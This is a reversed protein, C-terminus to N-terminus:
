NRPPAVRAPYRSIASNQASVRRMLRDKAARPHTHGALSARGHGISCPAVGGVIVESRHGSMEYRLNEVTVEVGTGARRWRVRARGGAQCAFEIAREVATTTSRTAPDNEDLWLKVQAAVHKNRIYRAPAAFAHRGKRLRACELECRVPDALNKRRRSRRDVSRLLDRDIAPLADSVHPEDVRENLCQFHKSEVTSSIANDTSPACLGDHLTFREFRQRNPKGIQPRCLLRLARQIGRFWLVFLM